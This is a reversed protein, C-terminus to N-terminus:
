ELRLRNEVAAASGKVDRSGEQSVWEESVYFKLYNNYQDRGRHLRVLPLKESGEHCSGDPALSDALQRKCWRGAFDALVSASDRM